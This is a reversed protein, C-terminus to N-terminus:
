ETISRKPSATPGPGADGAIGKRLQEAATEADQALREWDSAFAHEESEYPYGGIDFRREGLCSFEVIAMRLAEAFGGGPLPVRVRIEEYKKTMDFACREPHQWLGDYVADDRSAGTKCRTM